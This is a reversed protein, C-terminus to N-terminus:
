RPPTARRSSAWGISHGPTATGTEETSKVPIPSWSLAQKPQISRALADRTPSKNNAYLKRYYAAERTLTAMGKGTKRLIGGYMVHLGVRDDTLKGSEVDPQRRIDIAAVRQASFPLIAVYGNLLRGNFGPPRLHASIPTRAIAPEREFTSLSRALAISQCLHHEVVAFNDLAQCGEIFQGAQLPQQPNLSDFPRVVFEIDGALATVEPPICFESMVNQM